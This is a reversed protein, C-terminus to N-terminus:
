LEKSTETDKRLFSRMLSNSRGNNENQRVAIPPKKALLPQIDEAEWLM